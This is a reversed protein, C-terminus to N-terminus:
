FTPLSQTYLAYIIQKSNKSKKKLKIREYFIGLLFTIVPSIFKIVDGLFSLIKEIWDKM